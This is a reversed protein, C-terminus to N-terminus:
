RQCYGELCWRNDNCWLRLTRMAQQTGIKDFRDTACCPWKRRRLIWDRCVATISLRRTWWLRYSMGTGRRIRFARLAHRNDANLFHIEITQQDKLMRLLSLHMPQMVNLFVDFVYPTSPRDHFSRELRIVASGPYFGREARLGIPMRDETLDTCGLAMPRM